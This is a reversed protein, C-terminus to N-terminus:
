QTAVFVRNSGDGAHTLVLPRLPKPKGADDVPKWDAWKLDRFAVVPELALPTGDIERGPVQTPVLPLTGAQLDPVLLHKGDPALCFDAASEFGEALLVPRDGPRPIVYVKGAKGDSVFLRGFKDWCLGDCGGLGDALKETSGDTLKVRHLEGSHFDN